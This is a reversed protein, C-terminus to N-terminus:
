PAVVVEGADDLVEWSDDVVVVAGPVVDVELGPVVVVVDVGTVTGPVGTSRPGAAPSMRMTM